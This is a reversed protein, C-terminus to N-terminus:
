PRLPALLLSRLLWDGGNSIASYIIKSARFLPLATARKSVRKTFAERRAFPIPTVSRAIALATAM